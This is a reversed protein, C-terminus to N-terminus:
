TEEARGDPPAAQHVTMASLNLGAAQLGSALRGRHTALLRTGTDNDLTMALTVQTGAVRLQAGLAGLRPLDLQIQTTWTPAHEAGGAAHEGAPEDGRADPAERQIRWEAPQGPWAFGAFALPKGDLADLQRQLMGGLEASAAERAAPSSTSADQLAQAIRAQPERGLSALPMRGEAWALLHSEYFLGSHAIAQAVAQARETPAAAPNHLLVPASEPAAAHAPLLAREGAHVLANLTQAAASLQVTAAGHAPAAPVADVLAFSLRPTLSAVRLSLTEDKAPMAAATGDATAAAAPWQLTLVTNKVVAVWQRNQLPEVLRASVAEGVVFGPRQTSAQQVAVLLRGLDGRVREAPGGPAVAGVKSVSSGPPKIVGPNYPAM